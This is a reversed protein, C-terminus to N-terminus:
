AVAARRFGLDREPSVQASRALSLKRAPGRCCPVVRFVCCTAFGLPVVGDSLSLRGEPLWQRSQWSSFEPLTSLSCCGFRGAAGSEGALPFGSKSCTLM